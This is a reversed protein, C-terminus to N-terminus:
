NGMHDNQNRRYVLALPKIAGQQNFLILNDTGLKDQEEEENPIIIAILWIQSHQGNWRM